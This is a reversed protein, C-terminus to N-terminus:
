GAHAPDALAAWYLRRWRGCADDLTRPAARVVDAVWDEHWWATARLDDLMPAVIAEAGVRSSATCAATSSIAPRNFSFVRNDM